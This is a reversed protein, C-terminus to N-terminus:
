RFQEFLSLFFNLLFLSLKSIPNPLANSQNQNTPIRPSIWPLKNRTQIGPVQHFAPAIQVSESLHLLNQLFYNFIKTLNSYARRYARIRKQRNFRFGTFCKTQNTYQTFWFLSIVKCWIGTANVPFVSVLCTSLQAYSRALIYPLRSGGVRQCSTLSNDGRYPVSLLINLM